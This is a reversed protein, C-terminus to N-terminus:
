MLLLLLTKNRRCQSDGKQEPCGGAMAKKSEENAQKRDGLMAGEILRNERRLFEVGSLRLATFDGSRSRGAAATTEGALSRKGAEGRKCLGRDRSVLLGRGDEGFRSGRMRVVETEGGSDAAPGRSDRDLESVEICQAGRPSWWRWPLMPMGTYVACGGGGGGPLYICWGDGTRVCRYWILESSGVAGGVGADAPTM